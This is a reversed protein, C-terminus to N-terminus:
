LIIYTIYKLLLYQGKPDFLPLVREALGYPEHDKLDSTGGDKAKQAGMEAKLDM